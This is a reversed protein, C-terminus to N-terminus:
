KLLKNILKEFSTLFPYFALISLFNFLTHILAIKLSNVEYNLFNLKALYALYFLSLFLITGFVNYLLHSIAVKKANKNTKISAVLTTLCTGINEGMILPIAILYNISNNISITQLIAVTASSSQILTTLIIGALLGILPNSFSTLLAKFWAYEQCPLLALQMLKLGLMFLSFGLCVKSKIIRKKFYFFLSLFLLLPIYTYPNFFFLFKSTVKINLLSTIFSTLCTGLNAGMMIGLSSHFSLLNSNVLSVTTITILTSSQVLATIITGFILGKFPTKTYKKLLKSINKNMINELSQSFLNIGYIFIIISVIFNLLIKM